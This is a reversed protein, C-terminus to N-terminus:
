ASWGAVFEFEDGFMRGVSGVLHSEAQIDHPVRLLKASPGSCCRIMFSWATAVALAGMAPNLLTFGSSPRRFSLSLDQWHGPSALILYRGNTRFRRSQNQHVRWLHWCWAACSPFVAVDRARWVLPLGPLTGNRARGFNILLTFSFM